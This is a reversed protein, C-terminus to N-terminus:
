NQTENNYSAAKNKELSSLLINVNGIKTREDSPYCVVIGCEGGFIRLTYKKIKNQDM